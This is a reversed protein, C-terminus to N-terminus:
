KCKIDHRRSSAYRASWTFIRATPDNGTTMTDNQSIDLFFKHALPDLIARKQARDGKEKM